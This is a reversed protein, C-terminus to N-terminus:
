LKSDKTSRIRSKWIEAKRRHSKEAMGFAEDYCLFLRAIILFYLVNQATHM